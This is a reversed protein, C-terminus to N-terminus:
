PREPLSSPRSFSSPARRRGASVFQFPRAPPLRPRRRLSRAPAPRRFGGASVSGEPQEHIGLCVGDKLPERCAPLYSKGTGNTWYARELDEEFISLSQEFTALLQRADPSARELAVRERQREVIARGSEVHRRARAILDDLSPM